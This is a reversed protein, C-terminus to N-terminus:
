EVIRESKIIRRTGFLLRFVPRFLIKFQEKFRAPAEITVKSYLDTHWNLKNNLHKELRYVERKYPYNQTYSGLFHVVLPEVKKFPYWSQHLPHKFSNLLWREGSIVDIEYGGQCAQPDSMITGDDILPEMNHIQMALAMIVEDNPRNRLRVFGIEDYKKEIERALSYVESAKESSELYYIGGNFKPLHPINFKECILRIDGFWEGNTIYDGVVSVKKGKFREFVKILNGFILCDSDIFLTQGPPAVKDLFLKPTFGLGFENPQISIIKIDNLLDLPLQNPLDTVIYFDINSDRNWLIFSRALNIALDFYFKKGTALTIINRNM